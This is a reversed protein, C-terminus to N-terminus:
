EGLHPGAPADHVHLGRQRTLPQLLEAVHDPAQSEAAPAGRARGRGRSARSLARLRPAGRAAGGFITKHRANPGGFVPKHRANRMYHWIVQSKANKGVIEASQSECVPPPLPMSHAATM